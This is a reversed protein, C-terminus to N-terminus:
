WDRDVLDGEVALDDAHGVLDFFEADEVVFVEEVLLAELDRRVDGLELRGRLLEQGVVDHREGEAGEVLPVATM